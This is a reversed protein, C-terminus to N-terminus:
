KRKAEIGDGFKKLTARPVEGLIVLLYGNVIRHYVTTAGVSVRDLDTMQASNSYPEIFVSIAALGDSFVLHLSDPMNAGGQRKMGALKSFGPLKVKFRWAADEGRIATSQINQVLWDKSQGAFKSKLADHEISGGIQLQTFSFSEVPENRENMVEAKLLLGSNVDVWLQHGYRLEDKPELLISQSERGAVRGLVGKRIVYNESLVGLEAPLLAPFSRSQSRKEVILTRSDPLYCKVEDNSRIVERPSGDLVEIREVVGGAVIQHMIRSTEAYAGNQFVFTGSYNLKNAASAVREVWYRADQQQAAASLSFALCCVSSLLWHIM